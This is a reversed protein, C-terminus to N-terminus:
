TILSYNKGKSPDIRDNFEYEFVDKMVNDFILCFSCGTVYKYAKSGKVFQLSSLNNSSSVCFQVSKLTSIQLCRRLIHLYLFFIFLLM